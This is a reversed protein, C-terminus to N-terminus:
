DPIAAIAAAMREDDTLDDPARSTTARHTSAAITTVAESRGEGAATPAPTANRTGAGTRKSAVGHLRHYLGQLSEEVMRAAVSVDLMTKTRQYHERRIQQIEQGVDAADLASTLPFTDANSAVFQALHERDQALARQTQERATTTERERERADLKDRWERLQRLEEQVPDPPKAKGDAIDATLRDVDLGSRRLFEVPDKARLDMLTQLERQQTTFAQRERELDRKARLVRLEQAALDNLKGLEARRQERAAAKDEVAPAAPPAAPEREPAPAPAPETASVADVATSASTPSPAAGASTAADVAAMAASVDASNITDNDTTM